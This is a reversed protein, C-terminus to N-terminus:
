SKRRGILPSTLTRVTDSLLVLPASRRWNYVRDGRHISLLNRVTRGVRPWSPDPKAVPGRIVFALHMLERGIHRAQLAPPHRPPAPRLQAGAPQVTWAPYAFGRRNALALSGWARGNLEMFWCTGDAARLLEIMFLGQWGALKLFREAASRLEDDVEKSRCASAGSGQPNMMRVREHGSVAVAGSDTALGFVGEGTGPILPQILLPPQVVRRAHELHSRDRCLVAGQRGLRGATLEAAMAPKVIVPLQVTEPWDEPADVYRTDPVSFGASEALRLQKRKDLALDSVGGTPRPSLGIREGVRDAVWVLDDDMPLITRAGSKQAVQIVENVCAQADDRPSTVVELEVSRIWRLPTRTGRRVLAIVAFGNEVLNWATEPAALADAFGIIVPGSGSDAEAGTM